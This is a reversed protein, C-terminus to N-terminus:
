GFALQRAPRLALGLTVLPKARKLSSSPGRPGSKLFQVPPIPSTWTKRRSLRPKRSAFGSWDLFLANSDVARDQVHRASALVMRALGALTLSWLWARWRLGCGLWCRWSCRGTSVLRRNEAKAASTSGEPSTPKSSTRCAAPIDTRISTQASWWVALRVSRTRWASASISYGSPISSAPATLSRASNLLQGHDVQTSFARGSEGRVM